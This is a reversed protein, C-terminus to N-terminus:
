NIDHYEILSLRITHEQFSPDTNPKNKATTEFDLMTDPMTPM